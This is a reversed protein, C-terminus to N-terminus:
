AKRWYKRKVGDRPEEFRSWEFGRDMLFRHRDNDLDSNGPCLIIMGGQRTVRLLERYEAEPQDGFVHGGMWERPM